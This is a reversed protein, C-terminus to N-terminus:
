FIFINKESFRGMLMDQSPPMAELERRSVDTAEILQVFFSM